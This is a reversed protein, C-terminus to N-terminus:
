TMLSHTLLTYGRLLANDRIVLESTTISSLPCSSRGLPLFWSGHFFQILFLKGPGDLGALWPDFDLALFYARNNRDVPCSIHKPNTSVAIELEQWEWITTKHCKDETGVM